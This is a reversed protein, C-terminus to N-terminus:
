VVTAFFLRDEMLRSYCLKFDDAASTDAYLSEGQM